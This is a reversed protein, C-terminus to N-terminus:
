GGLGMKEKRNSPRPADHRIWPRPMSCVSCGQTAWVLFDSIFQSKDHTHSCLNFNGVFCFIPVWTTATHQQTEQRPLWPANYGMWDHRTERQLSEFRSAFFISLNFKPNAKCKATCRTGYQYHRSIEALRTSMSSGLSELCRKLLETQYSIDACRLCPGANTMGNQQPAMAAGNRSTPIHPHPGYPDRTVHAVALARKGLEQHGEWGKPWCCSRLVPFQGDESKLCRGGGNDCTKCKTDNQSLFYWLLDVSTLNAWFAPAKMNHKWVSEHSWFPGPQFVFSSPWAAGLGSILMIAPQSSSSSVTHSSYESFRNVHRLTWTSKHWVWLRRLMEIWTKYTRTFVMFVM